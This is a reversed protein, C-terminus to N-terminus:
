LNSEQLVTLQRKIIEVAPTLERIEDLVAARYKENMFRFIKTAAMGQNTRFMEVILRAANAPDMKEWTKAASQLNAVEQTTIMARTQLLKERAARLPTIAAVLETQLKKLDETQRRLEATAMELRKERENLDRERRQLEHMKARVERILDDLQKEAPKMASARRAALDGLVAVEPDMTEGTEATLDTDTLPPPPTMMRSILFSAAFSVLGLGALIGIRILKKM